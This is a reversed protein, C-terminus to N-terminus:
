PLKGHEQEYYDIVANPITLGHEASRPWVMEIYMKGLPTPYAAWEDGKVPDKPIKGDAYAMAGSAYRVWILQARLLEQIVQNCLGRDYYFWGPFAEFFLGPPRSKPAPKWDHLAIGYGNLVWTAEPTLLTKITNLRRMWERFFASGARLLAVSVNSIADPVSCMSYHVVPNVRLDFHLDEPDDQTIVVVHALDKLAMALGAEVMAGGNHGTADAILLDADLIDRVISETIPVFGEGADAAYHYEARRRTLPVNSDLTKITMERSFRELSEAIIQDRVEIYDFGGHGTVKKKPHFSRQYPTAVFIKWYDRSAQHLWSWNEYQRLILRPNM